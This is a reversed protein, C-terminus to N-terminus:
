RKTIFSSSSTAFTKSRENKVTLITTHVYKGLQIYAQGARYHGKTFNPDLKTAQLADSVADKFQKLQM